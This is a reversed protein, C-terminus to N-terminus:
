GLVLFTDAVLAVGGNRHAGLSCNSNSTVGPLPSGEPAGPVPQGPTAQVPFSSRSPPSTGNRSPSSEARPAEPRYPTRTSVGRSGQGPRGNGHPGDGSRLLPRTHLVGKPASIRLGGPRESKRGLRAGPLRGLPGQHPPRSRGKFGGGAPGGSVPCVPRQPVPFSTPQDRGRVRETRPFSAAPSTRTCRASPTGFPQGPHIRISSRLRFGPNGSPVQPTFIEVSPSKKPTCECRLLIRATAAARHASSRRAIGPPKAPRRGSGPNRHRSATGRRRLEVQLRAPQRCPM